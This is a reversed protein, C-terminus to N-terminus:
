PRTCYLVVAPWREQTAPNVFLRPIEGLKVFGVKQIFKVARENFAPITGLIVDLAPKEPTGLSWWYDMVMGGMEVATMAENPFTCFHGYAHNLAIGNLWAFGICQTGYVLFVPINSPHRMMKRFDESTSVNSGAFVASVLGHVIMEDFVDELFTDPLTRAGNLEVYPILRVENPKQQTSRSPAQAPSESRQAIAM